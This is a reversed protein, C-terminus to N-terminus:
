PTMGLAPETPALAGCATCTLGIRKTEFYTEQLCRECAKKVMSVARPAAFCDLSGFICSRCEHPLDRPCPQKRYRVDLFTRNYKIASSSKRVETFHPKQESKQASILGYFIIQTLYEPYAFPYDGRRGTFGSALAIARCANKSTLQTFRIACPSGAMVACTLLYGGFFKENGHMHEVNIIQIPVWEDAIQRTWPAVPKNRILRDINGGTRWAFTRATKIDFHVGAMSRVTEFVADKGVRAPLVQMVDDFFDKLTVGTLTTNVYPSLRQFLADRYKIARRFSPLKQAM